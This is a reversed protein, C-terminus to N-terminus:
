PAANSRPSSDPTDFLVRVEFSNLYLVMVICYLMIIYLFTPGGRIYLILCATLILSQMIM